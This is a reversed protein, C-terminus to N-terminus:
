KKSVSKLIIGKKFGGRLALKEERKKMLDEESYGLSHALGFLVEMVDALEELNKDELYESVEEKLKDELRKSLEDKDCIKIDCVSDDKSIIDPILDRVLKDYIKM